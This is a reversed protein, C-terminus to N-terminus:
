SSVNAAAKYFYTRKASSRINLEERYKAITRRSIQIGESQLIETLQQDTLVNTPKEQEILETIRTQVYMVSDMKGSHNTLGKVFLSRLAYTGHPTEIYKNRIARSITSEHLDLTEAIDKLRVPVLAQIGYEFFDRQVDLLLRALTYLTRDRQEIGQTLLLIDKLCQQCYAADDKSSQLMEVYEENVEFKPRLPSQMQIIWEDNIKEVCIEPVIFGNDDDHSAATAPASKLSRIYDITAMTEKMTISYQKSLFKFSLSAVKDLYDRVFDAAFRPATLDQDIQILLFETYNRAGVGMPEFSQLLYLLDLLYRESVNFRRATEALDLDLFFNNDLNFIFYRLVKKDFASLNEHLPMQELLATRVCEKQAVTQEVISGRDSVASPMRSQLQTTSINLLERVKKLNPEYVTLLPNDNAKEYIYRELEQNSFQLMELHQLQETSLTQTLKQATQLEFHM